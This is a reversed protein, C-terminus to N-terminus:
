LAVSPFQTMGRLNGRGQRHPGSDRGQASEAMGRLYGRGERLPGSIDCGQPFGAMGRLSGRYEM